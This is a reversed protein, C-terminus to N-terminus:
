NEFLMEYFNVFFTISHVAGGSCIQLTQSGILLRGSTTQVSAQLITSFSFSTLKQQLQM